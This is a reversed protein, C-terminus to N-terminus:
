IINCQFHETVLRRVVLNEYKVKLTANWASMEWLDGFSKDLWDNIAQLEFSFCQM